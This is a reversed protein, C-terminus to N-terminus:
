VHARGIEPLPKYRAVGDPSLELLRRAEPLADPLTINYGGGNNLNFVPLPTYQAVGNPAIKMLRPTEPLAGPLTINYAGGSDINFISVPIAGFELLVVGDDDVVGSSRVYQIGAPVRPPLEYVHNFGGLDPPARFSIRSPNPYQADELSIIASSINRNETALLRRSAGPESFATLNVRAHFVVGDSHDASLVRVNNVMFVAEDNLNFQSVDYQIFATAAQWKWGGEDLVLVYTSESLTTPPLILYKDSHQYFNLILALNLVSVVVTGFFLSAM